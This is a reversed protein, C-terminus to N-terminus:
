TGLRDMGKSMTLFRGVLEICDSASFATGELLTGSVVLEVETGAM